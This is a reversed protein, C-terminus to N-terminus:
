FPINGDLMLVLMYCLSIFDDRRGLTTFNFANKSAYIFNGRFMRELKMEIHEGAEDLYKNSIGFDILALKHLDKDQADGVLINNPKLDNFLYGCEHM